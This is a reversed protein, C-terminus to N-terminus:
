PGSVLIMTSFGCVFDNTDIWGNANTPSTTILRNADHTEIKSLHQLDHVRSFSSYRDPLTAVLLSSFLYAIPTQLNNHNGDNNQKVKAGHM